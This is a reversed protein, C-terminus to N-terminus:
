KRVVIEVRRNKKKNDASSNPSVPRADGMAVAEVKDKSIGQSWLFRVVAMSRNASLDLNDQWLNKTKVIPDSDTFGYVRATRGAYHGKLDGAVKKLKAQGEPTLTASGPPFLLHGGIVMKGGSWGEADTDRAVRGRDPGPEVIREVRAPKSREAVLEADKAQLSEGLKNNDAAARALQDKLGANAQELGRKEATLKEIDAKLKPENCGIAAMVFPVGVVLLLTKVRLM